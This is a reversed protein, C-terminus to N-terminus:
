EEEFDEDSSDIIVDQPGAEYLNECLFCTPLGDLCARDCHECWFNHENVNKDFHAVNWGCTCLLEVLYLSRNEHDYVKEVIYNVRSDKKRVQTKLEKRERRKKFWNWM